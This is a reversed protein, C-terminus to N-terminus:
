LVDYNEWSLEAFEQAGFADFPFGVVVKQDGLFPVIVVRDNGESDQGFEKAVAEVVRHSSTIAIAVGQQCLAWLLVRIEGQQNKGLM